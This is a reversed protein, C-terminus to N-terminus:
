KIYRRIAILSNFSGIIFGLVLIIIFVIAYITLDFQPWDLDSFLRILFNKTPAVSQSYWAFGGILTLIINSIAAGIMGYIGGEIIFPQRIYWLSGGVLQMIEIEKSRSYTRFEVTLLTFSFIVIILLFMIVAGAIRLWLVADKINNIIERSYRVDYIEPNSEKEQDIIQIIEQANELSVLRIALSAPLERSEEQIENAILPNNVENHQSFEQKAQEKSTYEIFDVEKNAEWERKIDLINNEQTEITFFVYIQPRNELSKLFLESVFAVLLFITLVLFALTMITVSALGIWGSRAIQKRSTSISRNLSTFISM